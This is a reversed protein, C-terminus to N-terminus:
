EVIFPPYGDNNDWRFNQYYDYEFHLNPDVKYVKDGIHYNDWYINPFVGHRKAIAVATGLTEAQIKNGTKTTIFFM